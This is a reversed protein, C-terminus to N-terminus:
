VLNLFFVEHVSITLVPNSLSYISVFNEVIQKLRSLNFIKLLFILM